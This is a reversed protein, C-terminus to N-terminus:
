LEQGSDRDRQWQQSQDPSSVAPQYGDPFHQPGSVTSSQGGILPALEIDGSSEVESFMSLPDGDGWLLAQDDVNSRDIRLIPKSNPHCVMGEEVMFGTPNLELSFGPSRGKDSLRMLHETRATVEAESSNFAALRERVEHLEQKAEDLRVQDPFVGADPSNELRDITERAAVIDERTREIRRLVGGVSSECRTLFGSRTSGLKEEQDARRVLDDRVLNEPIPDPHNGAPSSIFLSSWEHSFSASIPVGGIEGIPTPERDYRHERAVLALQNVMATTAEKRDTFERGGFVWTRQDSEAEQWATAADSFSELKPLRQGLSVVDRKATQLAFENSKRLSEHETKKSELEEVQNNLRMEHVFDMNGTAISKNYAFAEGGQGELPEMDRLDHNARYLQEIFQAKREVTTWAFGDSTGAAIYNYIRVDDNQNGQRIIRGERQQLDAPRWPVDVHHLAVARSQINAGTSLKETNGIVVDVKGNNCDDFLQLKDHDWEHIFRIRDRDMGKEVLEDRIADYMTFKEPDSSPVGRDCFIIQLGGPNPSPEGRLDVYTNDRNDKWESIVTDIVAKIRGVTPDFDLGAMRPDLTAKRGDGIIKLPGDVRPDVTKLKGERWMLDRNFDKVEMGPDFEVVTPKGNDLQPLKATIDDRGVFDMFPASMRALEGVNVYKAIRQRERIQGGASFDLDTVSQTFNNGWANVGSVHAEDMLDPRLYHQMVWMESISNTIPTGTAFTVVPSGPRKQTRLWELKMDMDMAKQSGPHSLEPAPSSRQLNKYGHAEDVILYDLGTMDFTLGTDKGIHATKEALDHEYRGIVKEIDKISNKFDGDATRLNELDERLDDIRRSLYEAEIELSVPMLKFVSEPIVVMDWDGTAAQSIFMRRKDVGGGQASAGSLVRAGPYWQNAERAIQDVLHNPVVLAPKNALGLRRLEMAGMVMSGTKGAGVVHNLLVGEENVMREVANRQYSYPARGATLGHFPRESGDYVPAIVNNFRDNYADILKTLREPDQVAWAPFLEAIETAKRGAFRTAEANIASTKGPLGLKERAEQSYNLRPAQSNMADTIAQAGTYVVSSYGRHAVGCHSLNKLRNDTTKFNYQGDANAAAVGHKLNAEDQGTWWKPVTVHWSDAAHAVKIGYRKHEPIHLTDAIFDVYIDEPIWTAGINMTIGETIPAPQVQQLARENVSFRNDHERAQQAQRLKTRVAGSLYTPAPIWLDPQAPDRFALQQENLEREVDEESHDPLLQTLSELTIAQDSHHILTVADSVSEATDPDVVTRIPNSSFLPGKTAVQTDENYDEISRLPTLFPDEALAGALHRRITQVSGQPQRAQDLLDDKVTSPLDGEFPRDFVANDKRWATELQAFKKEIQAASPVRPKKLEGRNLAGYTEVYADYQENLRARLAAIDDTANDRCATFLATTTDRLDIIDAWEQAYKKAPAVEVWQTGQESDTRLQEFRLGDDTHEYRVTGLVGHSEAAATDVLGSVNVAEAVNTDATLGYGANKAEIIDTSLRQRILEGLPQSDDRDVRLQQGFRASTIHARGLIHDPHDAFFGNIVIDKDDITISTTELFRDTRETPQQGQDRVRFILIDTGAETGAYDAFAGNKGSPLRVGTIFDARDTLAERPGFGNKGTSDATFTSTVVAVYGGPKTLDISKSIMYNHLSLGQTNHVKDWPVSQGFPVNGIAATFTDDAISTDTFSEARIQASPHLLSAIRATTPDLEVGVTHINAPTHRIFDGKGCGPELVTGASLGADELVGWMATTIDDNTFFATTITRRAAAYEDSSLLDRLRDRETAFTDSRSDFVEALAGWSQWQNLIDRQENTADTSDGIEHLTDLVALNRHIRERTNRSVASEAAPSVQQHEGPATGQPQQQSDGSGRDADDAGSVVPRQYRRDRGPVAMSSSSRSTTESDLSQGRTDRIYHDVGAVAMRGSGERRRQASDEVTGAVVSGSRGIGGSSVEGDQSDGRSGREGATAARDAPHSTRSVRRSGADGRAPSGAGSDGLDGSLGTGARPSSNELSEETRGGLEVEPTTRGGSNGRVTSNDGGPASTAQVGQIHENRGIGSDDVDGLLDFLNLQNESIANKRRRAM